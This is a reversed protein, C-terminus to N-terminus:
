YLRVYGAIYTNSGRERPFGTGFLHVIGERDLYSQKPSNGM